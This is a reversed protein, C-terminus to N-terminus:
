SMSLVYLLYIYINLIIKNKYYNLFKDRLLLCILFLCFTYAIASLLSGCDISTYKIRTQSYVFIYKSCCIIKASVHMNLNFLQAM